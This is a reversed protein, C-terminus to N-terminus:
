KIAATTTEQLYNRYCSILLTAGEKLQQMDLDAFCLRAWQQCDHDNDNDNNDIIINSHYEDNDDDHLNGHNSNIDCRTGPLFQVGRKVCYELFPTTDHVGCFSIWIFYGGLPVTDLCIGSKMSLIEVLLQCRQQLATQLKILVQDSYGLTLSMYMIEGILPVCGGQSVIYGLNVLTDIIYQPGEIWGCRVGPAFIKTFSSVSVCCGKKFDNDDDDDDHRRNKLPSEATTSTSTTITATDNSASTAETSTTSTATTTAAATLLSDIVAMRAPRRRKNSTDDNDDHRNNIGRWDLLYYVEDAVVIIGFRRALIALQWRDQISMTRGTPNQHTPIIYIMRIIITRRPRHRQQQLISELQDLDIGSSTM